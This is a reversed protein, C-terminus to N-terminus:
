KRGRNATVYCKRDMGSWLLHIRETIVRNNMRYSFWWRMTRWSSSMPPLWPQVQTFKHKVLFIVMGIVVVLCLRQQHVPHLFGFWRTTRFLESKAEMPKTPFLSHHSSTRLHTASMGLMVCTLFLAQESILHSSMISVNDKHVTLRTHAYLWVCVCVCECPSRNRSSWAYTGSSM